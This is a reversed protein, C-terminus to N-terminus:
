YINFMQISKSFLSCLSSYMFFLLYKMGFTLKSIILFHLAISTSFHQLLMLSMFLTILVIVLMLSMHLTILALIFFLTQLLLGLISKLFTFIITSKIFAINGIFKDYKEQLTPLNIM